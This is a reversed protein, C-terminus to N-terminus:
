ERWGNNEGARGGHKGERGNVMRETGSTSLALTELSAAPHCDAALGAREKRKRIERFEGSCNPITDGSSRQHDEGIKAM